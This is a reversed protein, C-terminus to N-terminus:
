GGPPAIRELVLGEPRVFDKYRVLIEAGNISRVFGARAELKKVEIEVRNAGRRVEEPALRFRFWHASFGLPAQVAMNGALQVPITLAREDSIEAEARSLVRGNFRMEIEDEICFFSFRLTLIAPRMEGDGRASEVDDAVWVDLAVTEGELLQEPVQREPTSTEEGIIGERPQLLYRKDRRAHVQPYAVERLIQYEREALPWPMYGLYMGAYGQWALTQSLARYM